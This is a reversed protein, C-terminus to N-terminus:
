LSKGSGTPMLMVADRGSSVQDVVAQQRGRFEDYGFVDHLIDLPSATAATTM